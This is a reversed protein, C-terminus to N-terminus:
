RAGPAEQFLGQAGHAYISLTVQQGVVARRTDVHADLFALEDPAREPVLDSPAAPLRDFRSRGGRLRDFLDDFGGFGPGLPDFSDFPDLPQRRSRRRARPQQGPPLVTLRVADARRRQGKWLVTAPGITFV